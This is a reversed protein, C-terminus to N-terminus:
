VEALSRGVEYARSLAEPRSLIAGKSGVGPVVIKDIFRLGMYAFSLEYMKLMPEAVDLPKEEYATVLIAGKGEVMSRGQPRNLPVMRDMFAKMIATPAYWYLPTAFLLVDSSGIASFLRAMGDNFVCPRDSTWCKECGICPNIRLHRLAICETRIGVESAGDLVRAALTDTNGHARPSGLIATLKM